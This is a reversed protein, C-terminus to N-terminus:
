KGKRAKVKALAQQATMTKTEAVRGRGSKRSSDGGPAAKTKSSRTIEARKSAFGYIYRLEYGMVAEKSHGNELM